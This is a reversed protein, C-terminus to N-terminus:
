LPFPLIIKETHPSELYKIYLSVAVSTDSAVASSDIAVGVSDWAYSCAVKFPPFESFSNKTPLLSWVPRATSGIIWKERGFIFNDNHWKVFCTDGNESIFMNLTDGFNVSVGFLGNLSSATSV